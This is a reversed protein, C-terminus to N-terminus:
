NKKELIIIFFLFTYNYQLDLQKVFRVQADIARGCMSGNCTNCGILLLNNGIFLLEGQVKENHSEWQNSFSIFDAHINNKLRKSLAESALYAWVHADSPLNNFIM